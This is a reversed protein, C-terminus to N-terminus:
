GSGPYMKAKEGVEKWKVQRKICKTTNNTKIVRVGKIDKEWRIKTRGALGTRIM